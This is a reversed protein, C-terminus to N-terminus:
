NCLLNSALRAVRSGTQFCVLCDMIMFTRKKLTGNRTRVKLMGQKGEGRKWYCPPQVNSSLPMKEANLKPTTGLVLLFARRRNVVLMAAAAARVPHTLALLSVLTQATPVLCGHVREGKGRGKKVQCIYKEVAVTIYSILSFCDNVPFSLADARFASRQPTLTLSRRM